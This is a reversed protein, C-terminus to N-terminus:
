RKKAKQEAKLQDIGKRLAARLIHARTIEVGPMSMAQALKDVEDLWGGPLNFTVQSDNEGKPRPMGGRMM